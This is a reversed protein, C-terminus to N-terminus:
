TESGSAAAYWAAVSSRIGSCYVRVNPAPELGAPIQQGFVVNAGPLSALRKAEGNVLGETFAVGEDQRCEGDRRWKETGRRDTDPSSILRDSVDHQSERLEEVYGPMGGYGQGTADGTSAQGHADLNHPVAVPSGRQQVQRSDKFGM